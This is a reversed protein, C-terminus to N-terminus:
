VRRWWGGAQTVYGFHELGRLILRVTEPHETKLAVVVDRTRVSKHRPVNHLVRYDLATLAPRLAKV